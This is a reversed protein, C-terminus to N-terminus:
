PERRGNEIRARYRLEDVVQELKEITRGYDDVKERYSGLDVMFYIIAGVVSVLSMLIWIKIRAEVSAVATGIAKEVDDELRDHRDKCDDKSVTDAMVKEANPEAEAKLYQKLVGNVGSTKLRRGEM